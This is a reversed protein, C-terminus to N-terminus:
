RPKREFIPLIFGFGILGLGPVYALAATTTSYALVLMALGLLITISSIVSRKEHGTKESNQEMVLIM